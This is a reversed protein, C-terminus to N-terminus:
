VVTQWTAGDFVVVANLTTDIFMNGPSPSAPRATSPGVAGAYVWSNSTLAGADFAPVDLASGPTSAYTRGNVNLRQLQVSGPPPFIRALGSM